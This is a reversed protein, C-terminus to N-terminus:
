RFFTRTSTYSATEMTGTSAYKQDTRREAWSVLITYTVPNAASGSISLAANPLAARARTSWEDLDFTALQAATCATALCDTSPSSVSGSFQYQGAVAGSKNTEMREAMESVLLVAQNRFQSSKNLKLAVTQIGATGLLWVSIIFMTVLTELMSFGHQNPGFRQPERRFTRQSESKKM